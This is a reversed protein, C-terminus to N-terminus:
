KLQITPWCHWPVFQRTRSICFEWIWYEIFSCKNEEDPGKLMQKSCLCRLGSYYWSSCFSFKLSYVTSLKTYYIDSYSPGMGRIHSRLKSTSSFKSTLEKSYPAFYDDLEKSYKEATFGLLAKCFPPPPHFFVGLVGCGVSFPFLFCLKESTVWCPLAQIFLIWMEFYLGIM